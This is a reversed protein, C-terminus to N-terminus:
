WFIVDRTSKVHADAKAESQSLYSGIVCTEAMFLYLFQMTIQKYKPRYMYQQQKEIINIIRGVVKDKSINKEWQSWENVDAGQYLLFLM